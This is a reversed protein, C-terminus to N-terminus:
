FRRRVASAISCQTAERGVPAGTDAQRVSRWPRASQPAFRRIDPTGWWQWALLANCDTADGYFTEWVDLDTYDVVRNGNFDRPILDSAPLPWGDATWALTEINYRPLGNSTAEYYHYGFIEVGSHFQM